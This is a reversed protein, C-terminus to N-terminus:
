DSPFWSSIPPELMRYLATYFNTREGKSGGEVIIRDLLKSWLEESQHRVAEFNNGPIESALNARADELSLTSTGVKVLIKEGKSTNFTVYAGLPTGSAMSTGPALVGSKWTGSSAFDKSFEARFYVTEQRGLYPGASEVGGTQSGEITHKDIFKVSADSVPPRSNALDILVNAQRSGPFTYRHFASNATSTLEVKVGYTTLLVSYYGPSAKETSADKTSRYGSFPDTRSGPQTKIPGVTPMFLLRNEDSYEGNMHTFGMITSDDFRYGSGRVHYGGDFGTVPGVCFYGNSDPVMACPRVTGTYLEEGPAPNGGLYEKDLIPATGILPNVYDVPRQQATTRTAFVIVFFAILLFTNKLALQVKANCTSVSWSVSSVPMVKTLPLFYPMRMPGELPLNIDWHKVLTM